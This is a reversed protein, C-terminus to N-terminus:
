WGGGGGSDGGSSSSDGGGSSFGSGGGNSGSGGARDDLPSKPHAVGTDGYATSPHYPGAGGGSSRSRGGTRRTDRALLIGVLVAVLGLALVILMTLDGTWLLTTGVLGAGLGATALVLGLREQWRM